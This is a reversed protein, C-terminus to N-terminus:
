RYNRANSRCTNNCFRKNKRTIPFPLRCVPNECRRMPEFDTVLLYFQLYMASLLNPCDWSGPISYNGALAQSRGYGADFSLRVGSLRHKLVAQLAVLAIWIDSGHLDSWYSGLARLYEETRRRELQDAHRLKDQWWNLDERDADAMYRFEALYREVDTVPTHVWDSSRHRSTGYIAAELGELNEERIDSYLAVLQHACLVETRFDTVTMAEQDSVSGPPEGRQGPRNPGSKRRLLGHDSVWHLISSESPEGRAGLRAFSLFLDPDDFTGAIDIIQFDDHADRSNNADIIGGLIRYNQSAEWYRVSEPESIGELPRSVEERHIKM